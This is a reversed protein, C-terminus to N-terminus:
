DLRKRFLVLNKKNKLYNGYFVKAAAIEKVSWCVPNVNTIVDKDLTPLTPM